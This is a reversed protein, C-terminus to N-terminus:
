LYFGKVPDYKIGAEQARKQYRAHDKETISDGKHMRTRNLDRVANRRDSEKWANRVQRIGPFQAVKSGLEKARQKGRDLRSTVRDPIERINQKARDINPEARDSVYDAAAQVAKTTPGDFGVQTKKPAPADDQKKRRNSEIVQNAYDGGTYLPVGNTKATEKPAPKATEKPAPLDTDGVLKANAAPQSAPAVPEPSPAGADTITKKSGARISSFQDAVSSNSDITHTTGDRMQFTAKGEPAPLSPSEAAAPQQKQSQSNLFPNRDYGTEPDFTTGMRKAYANAAAIHQDTVEGNHKAALFNAQPSGELVGDSLKFAEKPKPAAPAAPEAPEAPTQLGVDPTTGTTPSSPTLSSGIPDPQPGGSPANSGGIPDPQPSRSLATMAAPQVMPKGSIPDRGARGLAMARKLARGGGVIDRLQHKTFGGYTLPGREGQLGVGSAKRLPATGVGINPNATPTPLQVSSNQKHPYQYGNSM